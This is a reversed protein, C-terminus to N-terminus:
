KDKLNAPLHLTAGGANAQAILREADTLYKHRDPWDAPMRAPVCVSVALEAEERKTMTEPLMHANPNDHELANMMSCGAVVRQFGSRKQADTWDAFRGPFDGPLAMTSGPAPVKALFDLMQQPAALEQQTQAAAACVAAIALVGACVGRRTTLKFRHM